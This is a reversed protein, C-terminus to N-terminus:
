SVNGFTDTPKVPLHVTAFFDRFISNICDFHFTRAHLSESLM